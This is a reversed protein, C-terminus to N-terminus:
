TPGCFSTMFQIRWLHAAVHHLKTWSKQGSTVQSLQFNSGEKNGKAFPWTQRLAWPKSKLNELKLWRGASQKPKQILLLKKCTPFYPTVDRPIAMVWLFDCVYRRGEDAIEASSPWVMSVICSGGLALKASLQTNDNQHIVLQLIDQICDWM